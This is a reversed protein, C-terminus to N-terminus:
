KDDFVIGDATLKDKIAKIQEPTTKTDILFADFSKFGSAIAAGNFKNVADTDKIKLDSYKRSLPAKLATMDAPVTQIGKVASLANVADADIKGDPSKAFMLATGSERVATEGVALRQYIGGNTVSFINSYRLEMIVNGTDKAGNGTSGADKNSSRNTPVFALEARKYGLTADLAGNTPQQSIGVGITTATSAIVSYGQHTCSTLIITLPLIFVLNGISLPRQINM